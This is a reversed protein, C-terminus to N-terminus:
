FMATQTGANTAKLFEERRRNDYVNFENVWNEPEFNKFEYWARFAQGNYLPHPIHNTAVKEILYDFFKENADTKLVFGMEIEVKEYGSNEFEGTNTLKQLMKDAKVGNAGKYLLYYNPHEKSKYFIIEM